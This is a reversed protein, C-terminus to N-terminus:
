LFMDRTKVINKIEQHRVNSSDALRIFIMRAITPFKDQDQLMIKLKNLMQKSPTTNDDVTLQRVFIEGEDYNRIENKSYISKNM